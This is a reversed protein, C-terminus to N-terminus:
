TDSSGRRGSIPSGSSPKREEFLHTADSAVVLDRECRLQELARHNLEIVM